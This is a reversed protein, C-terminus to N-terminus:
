ARPKDFLPFALLGFVFGGVHALWAVPADSLGFTQAGAGFVFNAVFWVSLFSLVRPRKFLSTLPSAPVFDENRAGAAVSSRASLAGGPEFAFRTAAGLLGSDGASAGVLPTFDLPNFAWHTLAGAVATAAFLLLFRASGIRRAVPPGFAFIWVVNLGVHTWGGHLFAYTLLTWIRPGGELLHFQRLMAAQRLAEPDENARALLRQLQDPWIAITLRGPVFALARAAADQTAEPALSMAAHILLLLLSLGIVVVPANFAPERRRAPDDRQAEAASTTDEPSPTMASLDFL